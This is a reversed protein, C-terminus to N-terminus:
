DTGIEAYVTKEAVGGGDRKRAKVVVPHRGASRVLFRYTFSGDGKVQVRDDGMGHDVTVVVGADTRGQVTVLGDLAVAPKFVTLEPPASQDVHLRVTFKAFESPAGQRNDRDIATVQWYYTGPDLGQHLVSVSPVNSEFIPDRFNPSRDLIVHYKRAGDVPHWKFEMSPSREVVDLNAPTILSPVGPLEIVKSFRSDATVDVAQAPGLSVETDGSRVASGGNYITFGSV